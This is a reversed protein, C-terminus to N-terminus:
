VQTESVEAVGALDAYLDITDPAGDGSTDDNNGEAAAAANHGDEHGHGLEDDLTWDIEDTDDM